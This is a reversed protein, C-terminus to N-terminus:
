KGRRGSDSIAELVAIRAETERWSANVTAAVLAEALFLPV